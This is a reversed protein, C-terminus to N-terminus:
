IKQIKELENLTSIQFVLGDFSYKEINTMSTRLKSLNFENPVKIQLYLEIDGLFKKTVSRIQKLLKKGVEDSPVNVKFNLIDLFLALFFYEQGIDIASEAFPM